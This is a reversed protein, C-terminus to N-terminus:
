FLTPFNYAGSDSVVKHNMRHAFEGHYTTDYPNASWRWTPACEIDMMLLEVQAPITTTVDRDVYVFRSLGTGENLRIEIELVVRNEKGFTYIRPTVHFVSGCSMRSLFFEELQAMWHSELKKAVRQFGSVM